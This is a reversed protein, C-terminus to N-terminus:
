ENAIEKAKKILNKYYINNTLLEKAKNDGVIDGNSMLVVRDDDAINSLKHTIIIVISDPLLKEINKYIIKENAKDLASTAEDLILLDPKKLLARAIALRQKEGGSLKVGKEGIVTDFGNVQEQIFDLINANRCAAEIEEETAEQNVITLNEKINMNFFYSDQMVVGCYKYLSQIDIDELPTGNFKIQGSRPEYLGLLLKILTSKGCGSEGVITIKEGSNMVCNIDGLASIENQPYFFNLNEIQVSNIKEIQKEGQKEMNFSLIEVVRKYYPMNIKLEARKYNIADLGAFLLAYCEIYMVLTGVSMQREVVFFAGIVYALVRTLYNIKFDNFVELFGLYKINEYGLKVLAKQYNKFRTIFKDEANHTKIEKWFQLTNHTDNCYKQAATRVRGNVDSLAKGLVWNILFVLPLILLCYFTLFPNIILTVTLMSIVTLVNVLYEMVQFQLFNQLKDMDHTLRLKLDGPEYQLFSMFPIRLYKGLIDSKVALSFKNLISNSLKLNVYELLTRVIFAFFLVIVIFHFRSLDKGIVVKDILVQFIWPNILILPVILMSLIIMGVIEPLCLKAYPKMPKLIKMRPAHRTEWKACWNNVFTSRKPTQAVTKKIVKM